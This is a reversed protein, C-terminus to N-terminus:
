RYRGTSARWRRFRCGTEAAAAEGARLAKSLQLRACLRFGHVRHRLRVPRRPLRCRALVDALVVVQERLRRGPGRQVGDLPAKEPVDQVAGGLHHVQLAAV